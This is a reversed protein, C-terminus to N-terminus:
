LLEGVVYDLEMMSAPASAHARRRRGYLLNRDAL